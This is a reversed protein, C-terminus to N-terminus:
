HRDGGHDDYAGHDGYGGHDGDGGHDRYGRGGGWFCGSCTVVVALLLFAWQLAKFPKKEM